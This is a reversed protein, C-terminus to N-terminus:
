VRGETRCRDNGSPAAPIFFQFFKNRSPVGFALAVVREGPKAVRTENGEPTTTM